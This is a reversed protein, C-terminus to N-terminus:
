KDASRGAKAKEARVKAWRAKQAAAVRARGEASMGGKRKRRVASSPAKYGKKKGSGPPRGRRKGNGHQNGAHGTLQELYHNATDRIQLLQTAIAKRQDLWSSAKAQATGLLKGLDGAFDGLADRVEDRKGVDGGQARVPAPKGPKENGATRKRKKAV